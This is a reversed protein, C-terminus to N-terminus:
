NSAYSSEDRVAPMGDDNWQGLIRSTKGASTATALNIQYSQERMASVEQKIAKLEAVLIQNSDSSTRIGYQRLGRMTRADIVAEGQHLEARYGDFPVSSLGSAHSGDLTADVQAVTLNQLANTQAKLEELMQDEVTIADATYDALQEIINATISQDRQYDQYSAYNDESNQTVVSLASELSDLTPIQGNQAQNLANNLTAQATTYDTVNANENVSQMIQSYASTLADELRQYEGITQNIADIQNEFLTQQRSELTDYYDNASDSLQMLTVYQEQGAQNSLDISEVLQRYDARTSPLAINVFQLSSELQETLRTYQEEQTFFNQYYSNAAESLQDLGGAINSLAQSVEIANDGLTVQNTMSLIDQAIVKEISLRSLTEFAGENLKAYADVLDPFIAYALRDSEGSIAETLEAQIEASTKGATSINGISITFADVQSEVDRELISGFEVMGSALDDFVNNLLRESEGEIDSYQTSYSTRSKGFWGGDTKKKITQYSRLDLDDGLNFAGLNLGYDSVSRRTSGFISTAVNNLLGNAAGFLGGLVPISESWGQTMQILDNFPVNSQTSATYGDALGSLDGTRYLSSIVGTLNNNLSRMEKNIARLESYQGAEVDLMQEYVNSVSQSPESSGLVSGNPQPLSSVNSVSGTAGGFNVGIQSLVGAMMVSMAAVRLPATYPDGTGASAVSATAGTLATSANASNIVTASSMAALQKKLEMAIEIANVALSIKHAAKQADSGEKFMAVSANLMAISGKVSNKSRATELAIFEDTQALGEQRMAQMQQTYQADTANVNSMVSMMSGMADLAKNGTRTWADGIADTATVMEMTQLLMADQADLKDFEANDQDYVSQITNDYRVNARQGWQSEMGSQDKIAADLATDMIKQQAIKAANALVQQQKIADAVAKKERNRFAATQDHRKSIWAFQQEIADLEKDMAELEQARFETELDLLPAKANTLKNVVGMILLRERELAVLEKQNKLITTYSNGFISQGENIQQKLDVIREDVAQLETQKEFLQDAWISWMKFGGAIFSTAGSMEDLSGAANAMSNGFSTLARGMTLPMREFENNVEESQGQLSKFVDNSLVKGELVALRLKGVTMGMGKAIRAAIEPTNEVISNFEEARMVGGSMAQGFQLMANSMQEQSSGGITGLQQLTQTMTLMQANTAGLEPAIRALSQFLVVNSELATGTQQSIAYLEQSVSAYDGTASTAARIRQQLVNYRDAAMLTAKSFQYVATIAFAGAAYKAVSRMGASLKASSKGTNKVSQDFTKLQKNADGLVGKINGKADIKLQVTINKQSM